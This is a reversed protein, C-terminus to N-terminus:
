KPAGRRRKDVDGTGCPWFLKVALAFRAPHLMAKISSTSAREKGQVQAQFERAEGSAQPARGSRWRAQSKARGIRGPDLVRRVIPGNMKYTVDVIQGDDNMKRITFTPLDGEKDFM